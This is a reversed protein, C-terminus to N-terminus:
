PGAVTALTLTSSYTAAFVNAPVFVSVTANINTTGLGTANAANFWKVAAPPTSGAPLALNSNSVNNTPLTCTSGAGCATAPSLGTITSATAPFTHGAGDSFQTSTVTLNWGGGSSMGRADVVSVPLTYTTTQDAGNLTLSFSPPAGNGAVSLTSGAVVAANVTVTAGEAAAAVVATAACLAVILLRTRM